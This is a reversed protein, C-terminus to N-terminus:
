RNEPEDRCVMRRGLDAVMLKAGVQAATSCEPEAAATRSDLPNEGPRGEKKGHAQVVVVVVVIRQLMSDRGGVVGLMTEVGQPWGVQRQVEVIRQAL